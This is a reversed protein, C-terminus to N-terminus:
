CIAVGAIRFFNELLRRGDPHADDYYDPHFQTGFLTAEEHAIAQVKCLSSEALRRFRDPVPKVEWSHLQFFVPEPGLGDFLPHPETLQVPMYGREQKVDQVPADASSDLLGPPLPTDPYSDTDGPPVSGMPGIEAGYTLAMLQFGSCFGITPCTAERLVEQLGALDQQDYHTLATYTGGVVVARINLERLLGPTVRDYHVILCPEGSIQELRYKIELVKTAFFRWLATNERLRDHELDVYVIM